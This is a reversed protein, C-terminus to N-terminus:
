NGQSGLLGAMESSLTSADCTVFVPSQLLFYALMPSTCSWVWSALLITDVIKQFCSLAPSLSFPMHTYCFVEVHTMFVTLNHSDPHLPVQYDQDLNFKSFVSGHFKTSLEEVM